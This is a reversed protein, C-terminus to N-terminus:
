LGQELILKINGALRAVQGSRDSNTKNYHDTSKRELINALMWLEQEPSVFGSRPHTPNSGTTEPNTSKSSSLSEQGQTNNSENKSM